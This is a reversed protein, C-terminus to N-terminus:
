SDVLQAPDVGLVGAIANWQALSPEKRGALIETLTRPHIGTATAFETATWGLMSMRRGITTTTPFSRSM